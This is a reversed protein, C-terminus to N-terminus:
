PEDRAEHRNSCVAALVVFAAALVALALLATM